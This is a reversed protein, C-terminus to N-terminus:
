PEQRRGATAALLARALAECGAAWEPFLDVHQIDALVEGGGVDRDPIPVDDLRVPIFWSRDRPRRRIEEVALTLEENMYSRDRSAYTASFCAVFACSRDTVARRITQKWRQGPTLSSRDWWIRLGVSSLYECLRGVREADESMYSVFVFPREPPSPMEHGGTEHRRPLSMSDAAAGLEAEVATLREVAAFLTEVTPGNRWPLRDFTHRSAANRLRAEVAGRLSWDPGNTELSRRLALSAVLRHAVSLLEVHADTGRLAVMANVQSIRPRQNATGGGLLEDARVSSLVIRWLYHDLCPFITTLRDFFQLGPLGTVIEASLYSAYHEVYEGSIFRGIANLDSGRIGRSFLSMTIGRDRRGLTVTEVSRATPAPLSGLEHEATSELSCLIASELALTASANKYVTPELWDPLDSDRFYVGYRRADFKYLRRKAEVFDSLNASDSVLQLHGSEALTRCIALQGASADTYDEIVASLPAFLTGTTALSAFLLASEVGPYVTRGVSRRLERNLFHLYVPGLYPWETALM